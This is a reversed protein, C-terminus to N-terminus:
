KTVSTDCVSLCRFILLFMVPSFFIYINTSSTDIVNSLENLLALIMNKLFTCKEAAIIVVFM